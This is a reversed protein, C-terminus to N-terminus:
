SGSLGFGRPVGVLVVAVIVPMIRQEPAFLDVVEADGAGPRIQPLPSDFPRPM